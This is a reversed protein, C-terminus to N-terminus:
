RSVLDYIKMEGSALRQDFLSTVLAALHASCALIEDGSDPELSFEAEAGCAQCGEDDM